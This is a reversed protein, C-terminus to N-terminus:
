LTLRPLTDKSWEGLRLNDTIKALRQDVSSFVGWHCNRSSPAFLPFFFPNLLKQNTKFM